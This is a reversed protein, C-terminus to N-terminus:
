RPLDERSQDLARRMERVDEALDDSYREYLAQVKLKTTALQHHVRAMREYATGRRQDNDASFGCQRDAATWETQWRDSFRNWRESPEDGTGPAKAVPLSAAEILEDLLRRVDRNCAVLDPAPPATVQRHFFLESVISALILLAAAGGFVAFAAALATRYRQFEPPNRAERPM